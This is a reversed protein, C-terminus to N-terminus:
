EGDDSSPFPDNGGEHYGLSTNSSITGTAGSRDITPRFPENGGQDYAFILPVKLAAPAANAASIATIGLVAAVFLKLSTTKM